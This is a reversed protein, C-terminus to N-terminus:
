QIADLQTNLIMVNVYKNLPNNTTRLESHTDIIRLILSKQTADWHRARMIRDVQLLAAQVSIHPDLGSASACVMENPVEATSDLQNFRIFQIRREEAQQHLTKSTMSLNSAGSCSADYSITSPRPSFYICSDFKQAILESGIVKNDKIVLSGNAKAPFAVQAIGTILLPYAIGTLLTLVLFIKLSLIIIKM